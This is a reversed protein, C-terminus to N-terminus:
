CTIPESFTMTIKRNAEAAIPDFAGTADVEPRRGEFDSGLGVVTLLQIPVDEKELWMDAIAQPQLYSLMLQEPTDRVDAATGEFLVTLMRDRVQAGIPRLISEALAPDMFSSTYPWYALRGGTITMVDGVCSYGLPVSIPTVPPLDAAPPDGEPASEVEVRSAGATETVTKWIGQLQVRRIADLPEQPAATNGLGVFDVTMGTVPPLQNKLGLADALESPVADLVDPNRFDLAGATSLGSDVVVISHPGPIDQISEAAVRLATLLDTEPTQARASAVADDVRQRNDAREQQQEEATDGTVRLPGSEAVFPAGDAVVLSFASGQSVALDRARAATGTLAPPPTNAHAGVVIALAGNPEEVAGAGAADGDSGCGTLTAALVGAAALLAAGRSVSNRHV